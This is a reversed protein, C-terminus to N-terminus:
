MDIHGAVFARAAKYHWNTRINTNFKRTQCGPAKPATNSNYFVSRPGQVRSTLECFLSVYDKGGFFVVPQTTDSPLMRFDDYSDQKGRRKYKDVNQATSFTIDYAPTLFDARILGWGASLIYLNDPGYKRYIQEYILQDTRPKYLQWAPLLGIPNDGTADWYADNYQSVKERWSEGKNAIDDPRAFDYEGNSPAHAPRAVFKVKRGTDSQWHGANALKSGACSIVVIADDNM